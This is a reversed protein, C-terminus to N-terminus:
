WRIDGSYYPVRVRVRGRETDVDVRTGPARVGVRTDGTHEDVTVRTTPAVVKTRGDERVVVDSATASGIGLTAALVAATMCRVLVM